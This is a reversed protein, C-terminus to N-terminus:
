LTVQGSAFNMIGFSKTRSCKSFKLQRDAGNREVKISGSYYTRHHNDLTKGQTVDLGKLVDGIKIGSQKVVDSKKDLGIVTADLDLIIGFDYLPIDKYFFRTVGAATKEESLDETPWDFWTVANAYLKDINTETNEQYNYKLQWILPLTKQGLKKAELLDIELYATTTASKHTYGGSKVTTYKNTTVSGLYAGKWGYVPTSTSGTQVRQETEPVYNYEVSQSADKVITFVVDPDNEDRTLGVKELKNCITEFLEKDALVDDSSFYYDYTKFSRWAADKDMRIKYRDSMTNYPKSVWKAQAPHFGAATMWAPLDNGLTVEYEGIAPYELKIVHRYPSEIAEYFRDPYWGRADRGDVELVRSGVYIPDVSPRWFLKDDAKTPSDLLSVIYKRADRSTKDLWSPTLDGGWTVTLYDADWWRVRDVSMVPQGGRAFAFAPLLLTLALILSKKM